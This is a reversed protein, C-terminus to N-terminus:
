FVWLSVTITAGWGTAKLWLERNLNAGPDVVREIRGTSVAGTLDTRIWGRVRRNLGHLIRRTEADALDVGEILRGSLVPLSELSAVAERVDDFARAAGHDAQMFRGRM